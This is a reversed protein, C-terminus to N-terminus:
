LIYNLIIYSSCTRARKSLTSQSFLNRKIVDKRGTLKKEVWFDHISERAADGCCCGISQKMLTKSVVPVIAHL